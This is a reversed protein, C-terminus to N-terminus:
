IIEQANFVDLEREREEKMKAKTAKIKEKRNRKVTYVEYFHKLGEDNLGVYVFLPCFKHSETYPARRTWRKIIKMRVLKEFVEKRLKFREELEEQKELKGIGYVYLYRILRDIKRCTEYQFAYEDNKNVTFIM